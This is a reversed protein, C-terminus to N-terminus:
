CMKEQKDIGKGSFYKKEDLMKIFDYLCTLVKQYTAKPIPKRETDAYLFCKRIIERDEDQIPITIKEIDEINKDKM